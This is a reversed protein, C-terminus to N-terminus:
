PRPVATRDPRGRGAAGSQHSATRQPQTRTRWMRTPSSIRRRLGRARAGSNTARTRHPAHRERGTGTSHISARSRPTWSGLRGGDRRTGTGSRGRSCVRLVGPGRAATLEWAALAQVGGPRGSSARSAGASAKRFGRVQQFAIGLPPPASFLANAFMAVSRPRGFNRGTSREANGTDPAGREPLGIFRECSRGGETRGGRRPCPSRLLLRARRNRGPGSPRRSSRPGPCAVNPSACWGADSRTGSRM